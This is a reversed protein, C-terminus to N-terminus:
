LGFLKLRLFKAGVYLYAIFENLNAVLPLYKESSLM